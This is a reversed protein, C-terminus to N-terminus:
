DLPKTVHGFLWSLFKFLKLIFFAKSTSYFANKMMKLPSETAELSKWSLHIGSFKIFNKFVGKKYLLELSHKQEIWNMTNFYWINCYYYKNKTGVIKLWQFQQELNELFSTFSKYFDFFLKMYFWLPKTKPFVLLPKMYFRWFTWQFNLSGESKGFYKIECFNCELLHIILKSKRNINYLMKFEPQWSPNETLLRNGVSSKLKILVSFM